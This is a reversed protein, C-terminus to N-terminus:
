ADKWHSTSNQKPSRSDQLFLILNFIWEYISEFNKWSHIRLYHYVSTNVSKWFPEPIRSTAYDTEKLFKQTRNEFIVSQNLISNVM